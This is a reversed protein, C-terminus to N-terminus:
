CNWDEGVARLTEEIHKLFNPATKREHSTDLVRVTHVERNVNMMFAILHHNNIGTWGDAQLTAEANATQQQAQSRFYKVEDRLLRSTLTRRTPPKFSPLFEDCITLWVPNQVWSLAFNASSTLRTILSELRSQKAPTWDAAPSPSAPPPYPGSRGRSHSSHQSLTRGSARTGMRSHSGGFALPSPTM